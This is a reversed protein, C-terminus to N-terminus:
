SNSTANWRITVSDNQNSVFARNNCTDNYINTTWKPNKVLKNNFYLSINYFKVVGNKPYLDCDMSVNQTLFVFYAYIYRKDNNTGNIKQIDVKTKVSWNQTLDAHYVNYYNKNTKNNNGKEYEISSYIIDNPYTRQSLSNKNREPIWQFYENYIQWENNIWPNVCEIINLRDSTGIGVFPSFFSNVNVKAADLNLWYAELKTIMQNEGLEENQATAYGLWGDTPDQSSVDCLFIYFLTIIMLYIEVSFMQTM